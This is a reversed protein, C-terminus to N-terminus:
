RKQFIGTLFEDSSSDRKSNLLSPVNRFKLYVKKLFSYYVNLKEAIKGLHIEPILDYGKRVNWVRCFASGMWEEPIDQTGR